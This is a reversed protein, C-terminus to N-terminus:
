RAEEQAEPGSRFPQLEPAAPTEDGRGRVEVSTFGLARVLGEVTRRAERDASALIGGELAARELTREAEQRARTELTSSRRALLDTQRAYVYTRDNDLRAFFVQAPPLVITARRSEWDVTIDEPRMAELDVGAVVDGAAVLLIADEATLAGFAVEHVDRLDVVREVHFRTSELRALRRVATIVDPTPRVVTTVTRVEPEASRRVAVGGLAAGVAACGLFVFVGRRRGARAGGEDRAAGEM